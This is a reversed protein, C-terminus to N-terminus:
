LSKKKRPTESSGTKHKWVSKDGVVKHPHGQVRYISSQQVGPALLVFCLM